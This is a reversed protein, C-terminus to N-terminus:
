VMIQEGQLASRLFLFIKKKRLTSIVRGSDSRIKKELKRKNEERKEFSLGTVIVTKIIEIWLDLDALNRVSAGPPTEEKAAREPARPPAVAKSRQAGPRSPFSSVHGGGRPQLFVKDESYLPWRERKKRGKGKRWNVVTKKKEKEKTTEKSNRM